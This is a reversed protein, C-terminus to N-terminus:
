LRTWTNKENSELYLGRENVCSWDRIVADLGYEVELELAQAIEAVVSRVSNCCKTIESQTFFDGLTEGSINWDLIPPHSAYLSSMNNKYHILHNRMKLVRHTDRWEATSKIAALKDRKDQFLIELKQRENSRITAGNPDFKFFDRLVTNLLSEYHCSLMTIAVFGHSLNQLFADCDAVPYGEAESLVEDRNSETMMSASEEAIHYSLPEMNLCFRFSM